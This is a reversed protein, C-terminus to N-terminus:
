AKKNTLSLIFGEIADKLILSPSASEESNTLLEIAVLGHLISWFTKLKLHVDLNTNQHQAIVQQITNEFVLCTDQMEVHSNIKECTPIGLGFMIEYHKRHNFAFNWYSEALLNLQQKSDHEEAISNKLDETLKLFGEKSFHEILDDKSSFYKYVVPLSYGIATAIKRISLAQWGEEQIIMWSQCVIQNKLNEHHNSM